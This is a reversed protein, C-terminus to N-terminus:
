KPTYSDCLLRQIPNETSLTLNGPLTPSYKVGPIPKNVISPQLAIFRIGDLSFTKPYIAKSNSSMSNTMKDLHTHIVQM